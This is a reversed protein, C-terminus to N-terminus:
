PQHRFQRRWVVGQQSGERGVEDEDHLIRIDVLHCQPIDTDNEGGRKTNGSPDKGLEDGVKASDEVILWLFLLVIAGSLHAVM